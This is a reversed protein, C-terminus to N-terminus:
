NLDVGDEKALEQRVRRRTERLMAESYDLAVVRDYAGSKVLRRTMLGSGCSIDAVVGGAAPQFFENVEEFEKEIGPFGANAFNQRWGREYLFATLPSRFLGTQVRSAWVDSLEGGLEELSLPASRGSSPLLDAYIANVPYRLGDSSVRSRRTISGVVTAENTLPAKGPLPCALVADNADSSFVNRLAAKPATVPATLAAAASTAFTLLAITASM